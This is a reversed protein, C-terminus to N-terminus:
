WRWVASHFFVKKGSLMTETGTSAPGAQRGGAFLPVFCLGVMASLVLIRTLKM